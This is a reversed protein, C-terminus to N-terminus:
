LIVNVCLNWKRLIKGKAKVDPDLISYGKSINNKCIESLQPADIKLKEIIYGLRKYIARNGILKIYAAIQKDNRNESNFYNKLIESVHRIGGGTSPINLIDILTRTPDSIKVKFSKRWVHSLGFMMKKSTPSLIYSTGQIDTKRKRFKKLTFVVLDKFIQDTLEWHESANWGGIYCPSYIKLAVIWPDEKYESPNITGLPVTIYLGRRVRSLWGKRAWYGLLNRSPIIPLNLIKSADKVTFPGDTSQILKDLRKRNNESIGGLNVM